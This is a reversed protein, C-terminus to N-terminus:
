AIVHVGQRQRVRSAHHACLRSRATRLFRKHHDDNDDNPRKRARVHRADHTLSHPSALQLM